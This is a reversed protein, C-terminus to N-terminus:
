GLELKTKFSFIIAVQEYLYIKNKLLLKNFSVWKSIVINLACRLHLNEYFVEPANVRAYISTSM